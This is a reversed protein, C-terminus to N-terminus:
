GRVGIVCNVARVQQARRETASSGLAQIIATGTSKIYKLIGHLTEGTTGTGIFSFVFVDSSTAQALLAAPVDLAVPGSNRVPVALSNRPESPLIAPLALAGAVSPPSVPSLLQLGALQFSAGSDLSSSLTGTLVGNQVSVSLAITTDDNSKVAVEGHSLNMQVQEATGVLGPTIAAFSNSLQAGTGTTIQFTPSVGDLSTAVGNGSFSLTAGTLATQLARVQTQLATVQAELSGLPGNPPVQQALAIHSGDDCLLSGGIFVIICCLKSSTTSKLM